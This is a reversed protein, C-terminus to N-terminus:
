AHPNSATEWYKTNPHHDYIRALDLNRVGAVYGLTELYQLAARATPTTVGALEAVEATTVMPCARVTDLVELEAPRLALPDRTVLGGM